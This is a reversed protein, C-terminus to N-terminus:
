QRIAVAILSDANLTPQSGLKELFRDRVRERSGADPPLLFRYGTGLVLAWALDSDLPIQLPAVHVEISTFGATELFAQLKGVSSIQAMQRIPKPVPADRLGPQEEFCVEQLLSAFPEHAGEQWTSIALKGGSRLQSALHRVGDAMDPLFFLGYCCLVADYAEDSTWVSVDAETFSVADLGLANAKAAALALLEASLDVADIRADPGVVQAAPITSAGSGCCADLVSQGVHLDAAAVVANGMTNWLAPAFREFHEAGDDFLNGVTTM